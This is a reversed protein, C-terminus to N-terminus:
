PRRTPSTTAQIREGPTIIGLNLRSARCATIEANKPAHATPPPATETDGGGGGGLKGGNAGGCAAPSKGLVDPESYLALQLTAPVLATIAQCFSAVPAPISTPTM